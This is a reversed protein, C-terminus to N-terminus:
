CSQLYIQWMQQYAAEMQRAFQRTNWLPSTQRSQLLRMHINHRLAADQGLRVGWEVYEENTWAIGETVGVNMLMTYSNRAAWQQGVRTVVPIGMWLTELTTTAGNYPYTDLVVDAISLHARHTVEDLDRELFRLRDIAVGEAEAIQEFAQKISAEDALGKILLYSNPVERLIKMQMQMTEPHRKQGSQSSLYVVAQDSIDLLDRRLTPVGVEFGNVALYTSPLRWITESYYDQAHDPLVYPDAIYYDVAPIGSADFGLWTVQVPAPKLAMVGITHDYTISDLDVLIDIEDQRIQQAMEVCNKQDFLVSHTAPQIFWRYTFPDNGDQRHVHYAYIEFQSHDHYQLLWRALWGVSHQRMYHAIYGIKLKRTRSGSNSRNPKPQGAHAQIDSQLLDALQNQLKRHKAPADELYYSHSCCAPVIAIVLSHEPHPQYETLLEELLTKQQEFLAIADQWHLGSRLMRAALFGNGIMKEDITQCADRFRRAVEVSKQYQRTGEYFVALLSLASLNNPQDQLCIEALYAALQTQHLTGYSSLAIAKPLLIQVLAKSDGVQSRVAEILARVQLDDGWYDLAAEITQGLLTQDLDPFTQAQLLEVVGLDKLYFADDLKLQVALRVLQLLNSIDEPAIERLHQRIMWALSWNELTEQQEAESQLIGVLEETHFEILEPKVSTLGMMWTFQAEAEQGVLLRALGLHWVHRLTKPELEVLQEYLLAAEAYNNQALATAAQQQLNNQVQSM